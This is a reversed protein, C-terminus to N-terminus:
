FNQVGGMTYYASDPHIKSTTEERNRMFVHESMMKKPGLAFVSHKKRPGVQFWHVKCPKNSVWNAVLVGRV